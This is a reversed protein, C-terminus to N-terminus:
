TAGGIKPKRPETTASSNFEVNVNNIVFGSGVQQQSTRRKSTEPTSPHTVALVPHRYNAQRLDHLPRADFVPHYGMSLLLDAFTEMTWNGPAGLWRTIQEPKKGLRKAMISRTLGKDSHSDFISLVLEHARDKAYAHFYGRQWIPM